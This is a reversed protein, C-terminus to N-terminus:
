YKRFFYVPFGGIDKYRANWSELTYNQTFNGTASSNSMILGNEGMIGTHGNPLTGNGTGTPSIIVDGAMPVSVPEFIGGSLLKEYLQYTSVIVGIDFGAAALIDSVTEACAYEDPAVDNPSADIGLYNLAVQYIHQGNMTPIKSNIFERTIPGFFGSVPMIGNTQQFLKVAALTKTGFFGTCIFSGYNNDRLFRQLTVVGLGYDGYQLDQTFM